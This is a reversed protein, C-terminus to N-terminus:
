GQQFNKDRQAVNTYEGMYTYKKHANNNDKKEKETKPPPPPHRM